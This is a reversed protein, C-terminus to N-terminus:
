IATVWRQEIKGLPRPKGVEYGQAYNVGIASLQSLICANEVSEAITKIGMVHGIRHIAEVMARDIPDQAMDKIFSGDIKL